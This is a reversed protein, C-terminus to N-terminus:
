LGNGMIKLRERIWRVALKRRGVMVHERLWGGFYQIGRVPKGTLRGRKSYLVAGPSLEVAFGGYAFGLTQKVDEAENWYLREDLPKTQYVRKKIAFAGGYVMSFPSWERYHMQHLRFNRYNEFWGDAREWDNIRLDPRDQGRVPFVLTEFINGFAQTAAYWGSSFTIRDHMVVCNDFSAHEVIMNKKKTIWARVDDHPPLGIVKLDGGSQTGWPGCIIIEYQPINLSRISALQEKVWETHRGDTIIGFTWQDISGSEAATPEVKLWRFLMQDSETITPEPKLAPEIALRTEMMLLNLPRAPSPMTSINGRTDHLLWLHSGVALNAVAIKLLLRYRECTSGIGSLVIDKQTLDRRSLANRLSVLDGDFRIIDGGGELDSTTPLQIVVRDDPSPLQQMLAKALPERRRAHRYPADMNRFFASAIQEAGSAPESPLRGDQPQASVFNLGGDSIFTILRGELRLRYSWENDELENRCLREDFPQDLLVQRKVILCDKSIGSGGKGGDHDVFTPHYHRYDFVNHEERLWDPIRHRSRPPNIPFLVVDFLNCHSCVNALWNQSLLVRNNAIYVNARQVNQIALNKKRSESVSGSGPEFTIIRADLAPLIASSATDAVILVDALPNNKRLLDINNRINELQRGDTFFVFSWNDIDRLWDRVPVDKRRVAEIHLNEGSVQHRTVVMCHGLSLSFEYMAVDRTRFLIQKTLHPIHDVELTGGPALYIEIFRLLSKIARWELFANHVAIRQLSNPHIQHTQEFENFTFAEFYNPNDIRLLPRSSDDSSSFLDVCSSYKSAHLLGSM